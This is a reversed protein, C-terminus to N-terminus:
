NTLNRSSVNAWHEMLSSNCSSTTWCSKHEEELDVYAKTVADMGGAALAEEYAKRHDGNLIYFKGDIVIATESGGKDAAFFSRDGGPKENFSLYASVSVEITENTGYKSKEFKM